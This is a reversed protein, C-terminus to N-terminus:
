KRGGVEVFDGWGPHRKVREEAQAALSPCLDLVMVKAFHNM